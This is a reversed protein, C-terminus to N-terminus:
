LMRCIIQKGIQRASFRKGRPKGIEEKKGDGVIPNENPYTIKWMQVQGIEKM